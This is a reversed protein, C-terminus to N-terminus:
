SASIDESMTRGTASDRGQTKQDLSSGTLSYKERREGGQERM